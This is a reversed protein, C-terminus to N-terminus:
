GAHAIQLVRVLCDRAPTQPGTTVDRAAREGHELVAVGEHQSSFHDLPVARENQGLKSALPRLCPRVGRIPM